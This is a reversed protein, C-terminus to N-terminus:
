AGDAILMAVIELEYNRSMRRNTLEDMYASPSENVLNQVVKAVQSHDYGVSLHGQVKAVKGDLTIRDENSLGEMKLKLIVRTMRQIEADIAEDQDEEKLSELVLEYYEVASENDSCLVALEGCITLNRRLTAAPCSINQQCVEAARCVWKYAECLGEHKAKATGCEQNSLLAGYSGFCVSMADQVKVPLMSTCEVSKMVTLMAKSAEALASCAANVDGSAECAKGLLLLCQGTVFHQAGCTTKAVEVCHSFNDCAANWDAMKVRKLGLEKYIEICLPHMNGFLQSSAELAAHLHEQCLSSSPSIEDESLMAEAKLLMLHAHVAGVSFSPGIQLATRAHAVASEVQGQELAARALRLCIDTAAQPQSCGRLLGVLSFLETESLREPTASYIEGEVTKVISV